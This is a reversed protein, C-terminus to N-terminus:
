PRPPRNEEPNALMRLATARLLKPLEQQRAVAMVEGKALEPLIGLALPLPLRRNKVLNARVSHRARWKRSRAIVSLIQPQTDSSVAMFAVDEETCRANLLLAEIVRPDTDTRLSRLVARSAMRALAVREGVTLDPIREALLQDAVVRVQPHVSPRVSVRLMDRWGLYRVMELGRVRPFKAHLCLAARIQGRKFFRAARSIRELLDAALGPDKLLLLVHEENLQDNGMAVEFAAADLEALHALIEDASAVAWDIPGTVTASAPRRAM